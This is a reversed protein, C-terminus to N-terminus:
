NIIIMEKTFKTLNESSDKTILIVDELRIGGWGPIYIGPEITIVYGPMLEEEKSASSIYPLEHVEKGLCHGLGHIFYSGYGKSKIYDRALMDLDRCKIGPGAKEIAMKQATLVINYIEKQKETPEGLFVVRSFDSCYGDLVYGFDFQVIDGVELKKKPSPCGHMSSSRSGSAVLVLFANKRAGYIKGWYTIQKALEMEAIGPRVQPLIHYKFVYETLRLAKQIKKAKEFKIRM